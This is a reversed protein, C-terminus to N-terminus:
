SALSQLEYNPTVPSQPGQYIMPVGRAPALTVGRRQAKEPRSDALSFRYNAMLTALVLKMEFQALADGVCRRIGGGFPMFEYPSYQRELFRDPNFTKPDPYLDPRQHVQYISGMVMTDKPITQGLLETDTIAQRPFTLMAVPYIRLTENGLATLYPLRLIEMPDSNPGLATLEAQLKASIEPKAHLWYLAWAMATATTEHGAFLLTMLEDRLEQDTMPQGQEDRASMLLSLIDTREPQPNARREAIEAFLLTNAEQRRRVFRGWPSWAGLDQQLSPFFLFASTLPSNFLDAMGALLQKLRNYKATEALGFVSEFIVQLSIAQTLNRALFAQGPQYSALAQHTIKVILDGYAKLREGHFNPLLLQRRKRHRDGEIMIVSTDGLLPRLIANIRGPAIFHRRENSLLQQLAQPHNTMVMKDAGFGLGNAQFIDPCERQARELYSVPDFVWQLRNQLALGSPSPLTSM